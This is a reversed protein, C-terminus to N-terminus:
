TDPRCFSALLYPLPADLGNGKEWCLCDMTRDLSHSHASLPRPSLLSQGSQAGM